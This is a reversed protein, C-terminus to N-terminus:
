CVNQTTQQKKKKKPRVISALILIFLKGTIINEM